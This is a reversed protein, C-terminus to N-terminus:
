RWEFDDLIAAVVAATLESLEAEEDAVALDDDEGLLRLGPRDFLRSPVFVSRVKEGSRLGHASRVRNYWYMGNRPM